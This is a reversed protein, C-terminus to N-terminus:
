NPSKTFGRHVGRADVSSAFEDFDMNALSLNNDVGWLESPICRFTRGPQEILDVCLIPHEPDNLAEADAAFLVAADGWGEGREVLEAPSFGEFARDDIVKLYARFGDPSEALAAQVLAAWADDDSFDTRVLPSNYFDDM